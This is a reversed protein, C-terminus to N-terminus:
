SSFYLVIIELVEDRSILGDFYDVVAGIAEDRDIVDNNNADYRSKLSQQSGTVVVTVAVTYTRSTEGDEATVRSPSSTAAWM